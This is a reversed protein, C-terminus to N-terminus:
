KGVSEVVTGLATVLYAAITSVDIQGGSLATGLTKLVLVLLHGVETIITGLKLPLIKLIPQM